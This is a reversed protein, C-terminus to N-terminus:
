RIKWVRGRSGLTLTYPGLEEKTETLKVNLTMEKGRVAGSYVAPQPEPEEGERVPGGREVTYTGQVSFRGEGDLTVPQEIVGRAADFDLRAGDDSVEVRLHQGGWVGAALSNREKSLAQNAAARQGAHSLASVAILIACFSRTTRRM